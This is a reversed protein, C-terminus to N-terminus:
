AERDGRQRNLGEAAGQYLEPIAGVASVVAKMSTVTLNKGKLKEVAAKARTEIDKKAKMLKEVQAEGRKKKTKEEKEEVQGAAVSHLGDLVGGNKTLM